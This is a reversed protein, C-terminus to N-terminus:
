NLSFRKHRVYHQIDENSLKSPMSDMVVNATSEGDNTAEQFPTTGTITIFLDITGADDELDVPIVHTREEELHALNCIGRFCITFYISILINKKFNWTGAQLNEQAMQM